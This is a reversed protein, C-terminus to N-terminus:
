GIEGSNWSYHIDNAIRGYCDNDVQGIRTREDCQLLCGKASSSSGFPTRLLPALEVDRYRRGLSSSYANKIRSNPAVVEQVLSIYLEDM